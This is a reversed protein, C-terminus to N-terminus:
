KVVPLADKISDCFRAYQEDTLQTLSISIKSVPKKTLTKLYSAINNNDWGDVERKQLETIGEIAWSVDRVTGQEGEPPTNGAETSTTADDPKLEPFWLGDINNKAQEFRVVEGKQIMEILASAQPITLDKASEAGWKEKITAHIDDATYGKEKADIWIKRVQAESALTPKGQQVTTAKQAPKQAPKQALVSDDDEDSAIGLIACLGYRRAYTIASGMGQPDDAVLKLPTHGRIWEGSNHLLMTEMVLHGADIVPQATQVVSLGNKVMGARIHEIVTPLGAYKYSFKATTVTADKTVSTIQGQFASLATALEKISESQKM